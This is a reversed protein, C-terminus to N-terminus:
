NEILLGLLKNATQEVDSSGIFASIKADSPDDTSGDNESPIYDKVDVDSM